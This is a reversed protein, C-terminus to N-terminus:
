RMIVYVWRVRYAPLNKAISFTIEGSLNEASIKSTCGPVPETGGM